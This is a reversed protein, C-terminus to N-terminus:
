EVLTTFNEIFKRYNKAGIRIFEIVKNLVAKLRAFVIFKMLQRLM